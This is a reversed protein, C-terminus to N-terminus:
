EAEMLGDFIARAMEFENETEISSLSIADEGDEQTYRFLLIEDANEVRPFLAIYEQGECQFTTIVTCDIEEGDETPVTIVLEENENM